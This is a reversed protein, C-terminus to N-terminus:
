TEFTRSTERRLRLIAKTMRWYFRLSGGSAQIFASEVAAYGGETYWSLIRDRARSKESPAKLQRNNEAVWEAQTPYMQLAQAHNELFTNGKETNVLVCSWDKRDPMRGSTIDEGHFEGIGWYDGVTIDAIREMAAYACSYCNERYITGDLFLQYYSLDRARLRLQRKEKGLDIRACFAKRCSKDRFLIGEVSGLFRKALLKLYDNLMQGSPVGHCIIDMTVLNEPDGTLVKVAAVQCPTGSFLVTKGENLAQRMQAYCHWAESHVYKSGQMRYVDQMRDSLLHYVRAHSNECDMVAGAVMGGTRVCDAALSAFIGGSASGQVLEERRGVAAYAKRPLQKGEPHKYTCIGACKGCGICKERDIEPYYWGYENCEM